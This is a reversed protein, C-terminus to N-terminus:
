QVDVEHELEHELESACEALLGGLLAEATDSIVVEKHATAERWGREIDAADQELLCSLQVEIPMDESIHNGQMLWGLAQQVASDVMRQLAREDSPLEHWTGRPLTAHHAAGGIRPARSTHARVAENRLAANLLDLLLKHVIQM